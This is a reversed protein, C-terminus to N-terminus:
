CSSNLARHAALGPLPAGAPIDGPWVVSSHRPVPFVPFVNLIYCCPRLLLILLLFRHPVQLVVQNRVWSRITAPLLMQQIQICTIGLELQASQCVLLLTRLYTAFLHCKGATVAQGTAAWVLLHSSVKYGEKLSYVVYALLAAWSFLTLLTEGIHWHTYLSITEARGQALGWM